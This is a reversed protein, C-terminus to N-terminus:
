RMLLSHCSFEHFKIYIWMYVMFGFLHERYVRLSYGIYIFFMLKLEKVLPLEALYPMDLLHLLTNITTTTKQM